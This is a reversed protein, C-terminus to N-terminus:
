GPRIKVENFKTTDIYRWIVRVTTLTDKRRPIKITESREGPDLKDLHIRSLIEGMALSLVIIRSATADGNNVIAAEIYNDSVSSVEVVLKPGRKELQLLALSSIVVERPLYNAKVSSNKFYLQNIEAGVGLDLNVEVEQIGDVNSINMFEITESGVNLKAMSHPMYVLLRAKIHETYKDSLVLKTSSGPPLSLAGSIYAFRSYVNYGEKVGIISVHALNIPTLGNYEILIDFKTIQKSSVIPTIDLIMKCFSGYSGMSCILPKFERTITVNNVVLRWPLREIAKQFFIGIEMFSKKPSVKFPWETSASFSTPNSAGGMLTNAVINELILAEGSSGRVLTKLSGSIKEEKVM